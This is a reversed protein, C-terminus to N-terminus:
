PRKGTTTDKHGRRRIDATPALLYDMPIRMIRRFPIEAHIRTLLRDAPESLVAEEELIDDALRDIEALGLLTPM